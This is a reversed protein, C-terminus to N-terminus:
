GAARSRSAPRAPARGRRRRLRAAHEVSQVPSRSRDRARESSSRGPPVRRPADVHERSPERQARWFTRRRPARRAADPHALAVEEAGSAPGAACADSRTTALGGYRASPSARRGQGGLDAVVLGRRARTPPAPRGRPSGGAGRRGRGRPKPRPAHESTSIPKPWAAATARAGARGSPRNVSADRRVPVEASALAHELRASPRYIRLRPSTMSPPTGGRAALDRDARRLVRGQREQRGDSRVASGTRARSRAAREGVDAM